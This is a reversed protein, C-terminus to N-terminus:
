ERIKVRKDQIYMGRAPPASLRRGQLDYLSSSHRNVFSSHADPNSPSQPIDRIATYDINAGPQIEPFFPDSLFMPSQYALQGESLFLNLFTKWQVGDSAKIDARLFFQLNGVYPMITQSDIFEQSGGVVFEDGELMYFGPVPQSYSELGFLELIEDKRAMVKGNYERLSIYYTPETIKNLTDIKLYGDTSPVAHYDYILAKQIWVEKYTNGNVEREGNIYFKHFYLACLPKDIEWTNYGMECYTWVNGESLINQCVAEMSLTLFFSTLLAKMSIFRVSFCGNDILYGNM